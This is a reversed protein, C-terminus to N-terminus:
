DKNLKKERRLLRGLNSSNKTAKTQMADVGDLGACVRETNLGLAQQARETIMPNQSGMDVLARLMVKYGNKAFVHMMATASLNNEDRTVILANANTGSM